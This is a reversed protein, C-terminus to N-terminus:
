EVTVAINAPIDSTFLIYGSELKEPLPTGSESSWVLELQDNIVFARAGAPLEFHVKADAALKYQANYEEGAICVDGSSLTPLTDADVYRFGTIQLYEVGAKQTIFPAYIDRSGMGPANLFMDTDDDGCSAAALYGCPKGPAGPQVFFLIDPEFPQEIRVAHGNGDFLDRSPLNCVLYKKGLRAKWGNSLAPMAPATQCFPCTDGLLTTIFYTVGDHEEFVGIGDDCFFQEGDYQLAHLLPHEVWKGDGAFMKIKLTEDEFFAKFVGFAAYFTLGSLHEKLQQPVPQATKAAPKAPTVDAIGLEKLAIACLEALVTYVPKATFDRTASISASLKYAQSVLLESSFQSTGGGKALVNPGLDAAPSTFAVNDWGLGYNASFCDNKLFTAGQAKHMEEVSQQNLIGNPEIFLYGFRACDAMDTRIGGAGVVSVLERKQGRMSVLHRSDIGHLGTGTSVAGLPDLFHQKLFDYYKMGTMHEVLAAALEFGENCYVSFAGPEAKLKCDQWYDFSEDLSNEFIWEPGFCKRYNSGPLGSSHCLAMRVTIKKYREDRTKFRPLYQYVPKDLEVLGMECLKMVAAACYVKSVSGVNYLDGVDAPTQDSGRTGACCSAVVEGGIMIAASIATTKEDCYSELHARLKKALEPYKGGINM